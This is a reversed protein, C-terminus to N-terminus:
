SQVHVLLSNEPLSSFPTNFEESTKSVPALHQASSRSRGNEVAEELYGWFLKGIATEAPVTRSVLM